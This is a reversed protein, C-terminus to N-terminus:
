APGGSGPDRLCPENELFGRCTKRPHLLHMISAPATFCSPKGVRHVSSRSNGSLASFKAPIPLVLSRGLRTKRGDSGRKEETRANKWARVSGRGGPRGNTIPSRLESVPSLRRSSTSCDVAGVHRGLRNM